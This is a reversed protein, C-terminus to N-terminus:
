SPAIAVRDRGMKKACYLADDAQQLVAEGTLGHQPFSAVGLSITISGLSQGEYHLRLNRVGQCLEEARGRAVELPTDPLIITIEEGGYRCAIDSVRIQKQLFQSLERLVLDGADHGFNDNFRKFHDVDVMIISMSQQSVAAKKTSRGLSEELYRRNFLGTLSDRISENRLVERLKLNALALYIQEAVNRALKEQADNIGESDQTRLYLLGFGFFEREAMMPVCLSTAPQPEHHVHRCFLGPQTNNVMHIQGRSLAWCDNPTFLIESAALNGFTAVSEMLNDEENHIFVSGSCNPFLRKLFESLAGSADSVAVCAQLFEMMESVTEMEQNRQKLQGVWRELQLNARQLEQEAQKHQTIDQVIGFLKVVQGSENVVVQGKGLTYIRSGDPRFIRIEHEYSNGLNIAQEVNNQFVELDEPHIMEVLQGYSPEGQKPDLGYIRFTEDSWTIAQTIVDFSWNGIHSIKQAEALSAESQKLKEEALKRDTIDLMVGQLFLPNEDSSTIITAQDRVWLVEDTQTRLRYECVFAQNECTNHAWSALVRDRDDPHLRASWLNDSALWDEPAYGLMREIQPSIYLITRPADLTATYTAAPMQEVLVRYKNESARLAEEALKQESIDNVVEILYERMLSVTVNVWVRVGNKCIYQKEMSYYPIEKAVLQGLYERNKEIYDSHTIDNFTISSIEAGTYGLLDCLKQNVRFFRGELTCIAMGVASRNFVASFREESETLYAEARQLDRIDRLSAQYFVETELEIIKTTIEVPIREGDKRLISPYFIKARGPAIAEFVALYRSFEESTYVQSFHMGVLENQSYGFLEETKKNVELLNGEANLIIIADSAGALIARYKEEADQRDAIEQQLQQNLGQLEFTRERVRQELDAALQRYSQERAQLALETRRRDTIDEGTGIVYEVNGARDLTVTHSWAILRRDGDKTLWYNEHQKPFDGARLEAFVAKVGAIESEVILIDWIFKDKVEALSYGTAAECAHNFRIIRGLRDLVVILSSVTDLVAAMFDREQKLELETKPQANTRTLLEIREAPLQCVEPQLVAIAGDEMPDLNQLLSGQTVLGLLSGDEACVVLRRVRRRLMQQHATWLSDSPSLSWLHARMVRAAEIQGFDLELAQFQVIDRETVMGVPILSLSNQGAETIVICSVQNEAMLRAITLMNTAPAAHIVSKTMVDETRRLKLLDAPQLCNRLSGATVVGMLSGDASLVPLHRIRHQRFLNLITFIDRFDSALLTIPNGTMVQAVNLVQFHTGEAAFRVLDRETLLGVLQNSEMVLVCQHDLLSLDVNDLKCSGISRSMMAIVSELTTEPSVVLPHRDIAAELSLDFLPKNKM